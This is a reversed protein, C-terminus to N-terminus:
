QCRGVGQRVNAPVSLTVAFTKPLQGAQQLTVSTTLTQPIQNPTWGGWQLGVCTCGLVCPLLDVQAPLQPPAMAAPGFMGAVIAKREAPTPAPAIAVINAKGPKAWQFGLSVCVFVQCSVQVQAPQATVSGVPAVDDGLRQRRARGREMPRKDTRGRM